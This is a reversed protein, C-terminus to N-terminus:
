VEKYIDYPKNNRIALSLVYDDASKKTDFVKILRGDGRYDRERVVYKVRIVASDGPVNVKKLTLVKYEVVGLDIYDAKWKEGNDVSDIFKYADKRNTETPKNYRKRCRGMSCTSISGNYSRAGYDRDAEEVLIRFAEKASTAKVGRIFSEAGM